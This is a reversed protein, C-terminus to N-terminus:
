IRPGGRQYFRGRKLRISVIFVSKPTDSLPAADSIAPKAQCPYIGRTGAPAERARTGRM